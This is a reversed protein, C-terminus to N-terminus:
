HRRAAEQAKRLSATLKQALVRVQPEETMSLHSGPVLHIETGGAKESFSLRTDKHPAYIKSSMFITIRDPYSQPVYYKEAQINAQWVKYNLRRREDSLNPYIRHGVVLFPKMLKKRASSLRTSMFRRPGLEGLSDLHWDIQGVVHYLQSRLKPVPRLYQNRYLTYPDVMAVLGVKRGSAHLQRAMEFAIIAGSCFGGLLYPGNRQVSLIESIYHAAMEEIRTFPENRGDLGYSQLGYFPQDQELHPALTYHMIVNGGQGHVYFFPLKSGNPQIAVLSSTPAHAQGRHIAAALQRVTPSQLISAMPLSVEFEKEIEAFLAIALLSNGGLDFFNDDAECARVNLVERWIKALRLEFDDEDHSVNNVERAEPLPLARRDVKGNPTLPWADLLVLVSPVMHEPLQERLFTLIESKQPPEKGPKPIIYGILRVEGKVPEHPVVLAERVSAHRALANEIEGLEIRFGRIKMQRDIRGLFEINGDPLQRALDGTRYLRTGPTTGFADPIFKETTLDPRYLYGRSVGLGGIFIEGPTGAEVPNLQDDLLYIQTNPLPRGIPLTANQAAELPFPTEYTLVGVTTETPGYHNYITCGTNLSRIQDVLDHRSAEGGLVLRRRPLIKEAQSSKLLAALHSPVIKLCDVRHRGLYDVLAGADSARTRSVIHLCGGMCLSPFIVTNGLDAAITSVTAYNDGPSLNLRSSVGYVYNILQRHEVAVGKPKGTSGSTFLVYVLNEPAVANKVNEIGLQAISHWESDLCVTQAKLEPLSTKLHDMTLLVRVGADDFLKLREKPTAIEMPLYAGGAKLVGLLGVIMDLSRELYLGVLVEPGVGLARLYRALQNASANLEAYTLQQEEFQVAVDHPTREAQQEFLEHVCLDIAANDNFIKM